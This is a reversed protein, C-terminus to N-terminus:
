QELLHYDKEMRAEYDFGEKKGKYRGWCYLITGLSLGLIAFMYVDGIINITFMSMAIVPIGGILYLVGIPFKIQASEYLRPNVHPLAILAIGQLIYIGFIGILGANMLFATSQSWILIVCIIASIILSMHPTHWKPHVQALFHPFLRDESFVFLTRSPVLIAGNISTLFASLAGIAM